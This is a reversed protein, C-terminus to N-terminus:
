FTENLLRISYYNEINTQELTDEEDHPYIQSQSISKSQDISKDPTV